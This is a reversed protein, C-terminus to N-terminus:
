KTSRILSKLLTVLAAFLWVWGKNNVFNQIQTGCVSAYSQRSRRAPSAGKSRYYLLFDPLNAFVIDRNNIIRIWLDYDEAFIGGMYGGEDAILKRRFMVSPHCLPNSFILNKRITRNSIPLEKKGVENSLLDIIKYFSGVISVQPNRTMYEVQKKLRDPTSIDDADMRAILAGRSEHIGLNLSFTLLNIETIFIRIKSNDPFWKLVNQKIKHRNVGNAVLVIEFDQYSQNLCSQLSEFLREDYIHTCILWSVAPAPNTM